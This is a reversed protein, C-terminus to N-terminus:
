RDQCQHWAPQAPAPPPLPLPLVGPLPSRRPTCSRRHTRHAQTHQAARHWQGEWRARSSVEDGGEHRGGVVVLWEWWGSELWIAATISVSSSLWSCAASRAAIRLLFFCITAACRMFFDVALLRLMSGALCRAAAAPRRVVAAMRALRPAIPMSVDAASARALSRLWDRPRLRLLHTHNTTTPPAHPPLHPHRARKLRGPEPRVVANGGRGSGGGGRLACM